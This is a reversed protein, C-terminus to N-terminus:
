KRGSINGIKHPPTHQKSLNNNLPTTVFPFSQEPFYTAQIFFSTMPCLPQHKWFQDDDKHKCNFPATSVTLAVLQQTFINM